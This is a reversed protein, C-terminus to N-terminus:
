WAVMWKGQVMLISIENLLCRVFFISAINDVHALPLNQFVFLLQSHDVKTIFGVKLLAQENPAPTYRTIFTMLRRCRISTITSGTSGVRSQISNKHQQQYWFLFLDNCKNLLPLCHEKLLLNPETTPIGHDMVELYCSIKWTTINAIGGNYTVHQPKFDRLIAPFIEKLYLPNIGEKIILHRLKMLKCRIVGKCIEKSINHRVIDCNNIVGGSGISSNKTISCKEKRGGKMEDLAPHQTTKCPSSSSIGGVDPSDNEDNGVAQHCQDSETSNREDQSM